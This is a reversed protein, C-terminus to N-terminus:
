VKAKPKKNSGNKNRDLLVSQARKKNNKNASSSSSSPSVQKGKTPEGVLGQKFNNYKRKIDDVQDLAEQTQLEHRKIEAKQREVLRKTGNRERINELNEKELKVIQERQESNNQRGIKCKNELEIMDNELEVSMLEDFESGRDWLEVLVFPSLHALNQSM